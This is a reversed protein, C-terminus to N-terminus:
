RNLRRAAEDYADVATALAEGVSTGNAIDVFATRFADQLQGYAVTLPRVEATNRSEWASLRMVNGPFTDFAADSDIKDLLHLTTPLQNQNEFWVATGKESLTAYRAFDLAAEANQSASSIGLFWSGTPTVAEGQAFQPHPAIGFNIGSDAIGFINWTGGVFMALQGNTFLQTGEGFALARPSVEMENFLASWWNAAETWADGDFYGSATMANDSIIKSGLSTGLPQLQYLEGFQEFAFGWVSTRGGESKTVAKAADTVQRWTWRGSTGLAEIDAASATSGPALGDPLAIGAAELLDKNYFMVQASSNMPLAFLENEFSGALVAAEVLATEAESAIDDGLKQIYGNAAYSAILPADTYVIDIDEDGSKLRLETVQFFQGWPLAQIEVTTGPNDEMYAAAVAEMAMRDLGELMQITLTTEAKAVGTTSVAAIACAGLVKRLQTM